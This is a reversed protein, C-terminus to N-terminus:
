IKVFSFTILCRQCQCFFFLFVEQKKKLSDLCRFVTKENIKEVLLLRRPAVVPGPCRATDSRFTRREFSNRSLSPVCLGIFIDRIFFSMECASRCLLFYFSDLNGNRICSIDGSRRTIGRAAGEAVRGDAVAICGHTRRHPILLPPPAVRGGAGWVARM